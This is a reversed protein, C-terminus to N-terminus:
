QHVLKAEELLVFSYSLLHFSSVIRYVPSKEAPVECSFNRLRVDQVKFCTRSLM